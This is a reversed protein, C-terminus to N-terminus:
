RRWKRALWYAYAQSLAVVRGHLAQEVLAQDEPTAIYTSTGRLRTTRGPVGGGSLTAVGVMTDPNAPGGGGLYVSNVTVSLTAGSPDGPAMHSAFAKALAGPLSDQVWQATPNGSQAVVPGADVVINSIRYGSVTPSAGPASATQTTNCGSLGAAALAGFGLLAGRRTM